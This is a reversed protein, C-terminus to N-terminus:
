PRLQKDPRPAGPIILMEGAEVSANQKGNADAIRTWASADGYHQQAIRQLTEDGSTVYLTDETATQALANTRDLLGDVLGSSKVIETVGTSIARGAGMVSDFASGALDSWEFNRAHDFAEGLSGKADTLHGAARAAAGPDVVSGLVNITDLVAGAQGVASTAAGVASRARALYEGGIGSPLVDLISVVKGVAAFADGVLPIDRLGRWIRSKSGGLGHDIVQLEISYAIRQPELTKFRVSAWLCRRRTTGYEYIVPYGSRRMQEVLQMQLLAWGPVGKLRDEFVGAFAIPGEETGIIQATPLSSGPYYRIVHRGRGEIDTENGGQPLDSGSLIARRRRGGDETLIVPLVPLYSM